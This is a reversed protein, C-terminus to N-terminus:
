TWSPIPTGNLEIEITPELASHLAAHLYCTNAAMQLLRKMVEVSEDGHLFVHTDIPHARAIGGSLECDTSQVLRLARINMKHHEVYRLIQTMLCFAVGSLAYALGSPALARRDSEDSRLAFCTGGPLNAWTRSNTERNSLAATGHIPIEVKGSQWVPPSGTQSLQAPGIKQIIAEAPATDQFPRPVGTWSKLPDVADPAGSAALNDLSLRRGNAYLAFTNTLPTRWAALIPSALVAEHVLAKVHEASADSQIRLTIRPSYAHGQGDGRFFSGDFRYQNILGTEVRELVIGRMEARRSIRNLLDAQLGAAMFGLPFPALDTGKLGAGEDSVMRWAAGSHGENVVAEKQHGGLARAQVVFTDCADSLGLVEPRRDVPGCLFCLPFGSGEITDSPASPLAM